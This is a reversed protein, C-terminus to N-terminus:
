HVGLKRKSHAAEFENPSVGGLYSHRRVSNYFDDIYEALSLTAADRDSYIHKKIHEKKRGGFFSEAVLFLHCVVIEGGVAASNYNSM